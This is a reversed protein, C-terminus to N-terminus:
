SRWFPKLGERRAQERSLGIDQLQQEDLKLLCRRSRSRHKFLGWRGLDPTPRRVHLPEQEAPRQPDNLGPSIDSLGNM